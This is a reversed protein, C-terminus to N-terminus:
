PGDVYRELIRGGFRAILREAIDTLAQDLHTRNTEIAEPSDANYHVLWTVTTGRESPQVTVMHLSNRVGFADTKDSGTSAWGHNPEYWSIPEPHTIREGGETQPKFHCIYATPTGTSDRRVEVRELGASYEPMRALDGVLAWVERVPADLAV